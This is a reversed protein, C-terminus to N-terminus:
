RRDAAPDPVPLYGAYRTSSILAAVEDFNELQEAASGPTLKVLETQVPSSPVGLYGCVRDVTRAQQEETELDDEYVLDLRPIGALASRLFAVADEILWLGALVAEPDISRPVFRAGDSRQYHHQTDSARISSIAQRFWDRRELLIIRFGRDHFSRLYGVPDAPNQLAAHHALLKFGYARGGRARARVSRRVLLEAPLLRRAILIESDCVIGPHSDLLSVLLESGTRGTTMIVFRPEASVLQFALRAVAPRHPELATAARLRATRALNQTRSLLGV